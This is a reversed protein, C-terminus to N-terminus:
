GKYKQFWAPALGKSFDRLATQLDPQEMWEGFDRVAKEVQARLDSPCALRKSRALSSPSCHLLRDLQRQLAKAGAPDCIEDVLGRSHAEEATLPRTSLALAGFAGHTMRRLLFPSVIFPAMGVIAESLALHVGRAAIVIDCAAVIGLGGAAADGEVQAIFPKSSECIRLLAAAFTGASRLSAATDIGAAASLDMGTCFKPGESAIVVARCDPDADASQICHDLRAVAEPDLANGLASTALTITAVAARHEYRVFDM